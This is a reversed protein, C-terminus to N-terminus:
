NAKVYLHYDNGEFFKELTAELKFGLKEVMRVAQSDTTLVHAYVPKDKYLELTRKIRRYYDRAINRNGKVAQSVMCWALYAGNYEIIDAIAIIEGGVTATKPSGLLRAKKYYQEIDRETFAKQYPQLDISCYDEFHTTRLEIM